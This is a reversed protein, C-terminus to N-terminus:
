IVLNVKYATVKYGTEVTDLLAFTPFCALSLSLRVVVVSQAVVATNMSALRGGHVMTWVGCVAAMM